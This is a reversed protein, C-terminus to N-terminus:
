SKRAEEKSAEAASKAQAAYEEAQRYHGGDFAREAKDLYAEATRVTAGFDRANALVLKAFSIAEEAENYQKKAVELTDIAQDFFTAAATYEGDDLAREGRDFFQQPSHLDINLAHANELAEGADDRARVAKRRLTQRKSLTSELARLEDMATDFEGAAITEQARKLRERAGAVPVGEKKSSSILDALSDYKSEVSSQEEQLGRATRKASRTEELVTDYDFRGLANEAHEIHTRAKAISGMDAEINDVVRQASAIRDVADKHKRKAKEAYDEAERALDVARDYRGDGFAEEARRYYRRADTMSAGTESVTGILEEAAELAIKTRKERDSEVATLERKFNAYKLTRQLLQGFPISFLSYILIWNPFLYPREELAWYANWPLSVTRPDLKPIFMMWMWTFIAIAIIMTFVMPKMQNMTQSSQAGMMQSQMERMKKEKLTDGKMRAERLEKNFASMRKQMRAMEVWDMFYHRILTSIVVTIMGACILTLVPYDGVGDMNLDFGITPQLVTGILQALAIRIRMDLIIMVTLMGLLIMIFGSTGSCGECGPPTAPQGSRAGASGASDASGSPKPSM